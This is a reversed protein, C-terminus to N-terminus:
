KKATKNHTVASFTTVYLCVSTIYQQLIYRGSFNYKMLVAAQIEIMEDEPGSIGTIFDKEVENINLVEIELIAFACM